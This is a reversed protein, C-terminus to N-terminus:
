TMLVLDAARLIKRMNEVTTERKEVLGGQEENKGMATERRLSLGDREARPCAEGDAM